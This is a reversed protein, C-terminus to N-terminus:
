GQRTIFRIGHHLGTTELIARENYLPVVKEGTVLSRTTGGTQPNKRYVYIEEFKNPIAQGVSIAYTSTSLLLDRIEAFIVKDGMAIRSFKDELANRMLIYGRTIDESTARSSWNVACVFEVGLPQPGLVYPRNGQGTVQSVVRAVEELLLPSTTPTRSLIYLSYTGPGQECIVEKVDSVGPVSLAAIRIAIPIAMQRAKFSNALRYRYSEKSEREEGNSIAYRNTCKLTNSGSQLYNTVDHELLVNRPVISSSGEIKARVPVYVFSSTNTATVDETTVYEIVSQTEIGPTIISDTAAVTSVTSGQEILISSGGNIDGFTGSSVYFMMNNGEASTHTAERRPLNWMDGIFDLFRNDAFKIFVQMLNEDFTLHQDGQEESMIDLLVRTKGGPSLRTINTRRSLKDLSSAVISETTREFFAM